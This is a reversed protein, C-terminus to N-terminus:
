LTLSLGAMFNIGPMPYGANIEYKQNLLNDGRAWIGLWPTLQYSANLNLLFFNDKVPNQGVVTYLGAVEMGGASVRFKERHFELGAYATIEPAGVVPNRMNLWSGNTVLNFSSSIHWRLELEVGSNEIPGTNVNLPMGNVMQTQIMNRGKLYFVNLGYTVYDGAPASFKSRSSYFM